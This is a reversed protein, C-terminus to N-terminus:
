RAPETAAAEELTALAKRMAALFARAKREEARDAIFRIESAIWDVVMEAERALWAATEGDLEMPAGLDLARLKAALAETEVLCDEGIEEEETAIHIRHELEDAVDAPLIVTM